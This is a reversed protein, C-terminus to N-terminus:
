AREDLVYGAGRVTHILPKGFPEHELGQRVIPLYLSLEIQPACGGFPKLSHRPAPLGNM